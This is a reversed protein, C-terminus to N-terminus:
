SELDVDDPVPTRDHRPHTEYMRVMVVVGSAATLAAVAWIARKM